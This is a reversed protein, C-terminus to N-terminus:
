SVSLGLNGSGGNSYGSMGCGVGFGLEGFEVILCCEWWFPCSLVYPDASIICIFLYGCFYRGLFSCFFSLFV